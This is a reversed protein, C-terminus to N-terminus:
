LPRPPTPCDTLTELKVTKNKVLILSVRTESQCRRQGFSARSM